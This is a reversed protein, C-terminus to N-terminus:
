RLVARRQDSEDRRVWSGDGQNLYVVSRLGRRGGPPGSGPTAPMRPGEGLSILDPRGDRNWDAAEVTRSPFLRSGHRPPRGAFDIGRGWEEFGGSGDAM